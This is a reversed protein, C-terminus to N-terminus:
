VVGNPFKQRIMAGDAESADRLLPMCCEAFTILPSRLLRLMNRIRSLDKWILVIYNDRIHATYGFRKGIWDLAKVSYFFVHQGTFVSLYDWDAEEGRYLVTRALLVKPNAAFMRALTEAPAPLHELVEIAIVLDFAFRRRDPMSAKQMDGM